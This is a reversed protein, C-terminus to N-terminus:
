LLLGGEVKAAAGPTHTETGQSQLPNQRDRRHLVLVFVSLMLQTEPDPTSVRASPVPCQCIWMVWTTSCGDPLCPSHSRQGTPLLLVRPNMEMVPVCLFTTSHFIGGALSIPLVPIVMFYFLCVLSSAPQEPAKTSSHPGGWCAQTLSLATDVGRDDLWGQQWPPMEMCIAGVHEWAPSRRM